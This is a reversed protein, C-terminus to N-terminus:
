RYSPTEAQAAARHSLEALLAERLEGYGPFGVSRCFRMVAEADTECLYALEAIRMDVVLAPEQAVIRGVRQASTPLHSLRSQIDTRISVRCGGFTEM